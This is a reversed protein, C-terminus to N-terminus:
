TYYASVTTAWRFQQILKEPVGAQFLNSVGTARLSHNTKKGQLKAEKCMDKVLNALTNRGIPNATFWVAQTDEDISTRPQVYIYGECVGRCYNPCGFCVCPM